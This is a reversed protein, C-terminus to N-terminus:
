PFVTDMVYGITTLIDFAVDYASPSLLLFVIHDQTFTHFHSRWILTATTQMRNNFQAATGAGNAYAPTSGAITTVVAAPTTVMRVVSSTSKQVFLFTGAAFAWTMGKASYLSAALGTGDASVAAGTGVFKTVMVTMLNIHHLYANSSVYMSTTDM